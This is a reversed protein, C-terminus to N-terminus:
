KSVGKGWFKQWWSKAEWKLVVMKKKEIQTTLRDTSEIVPDVVGQVKNKIRESSLNIAKRLEEIQSEVGSMRVDLNQIHQRDKEMSRDM